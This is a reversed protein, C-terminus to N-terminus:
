RVKGEEWLEKLVRITLGLDLRLDNAIDFTDAEKREKLYKLIERRAQAKSVNRIQIVRIERVTDLYHKVAERIFESRSRANVKNLLGDIAELEEEDFRVPVIKQKVTRQM